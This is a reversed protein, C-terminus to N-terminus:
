STPSTSPRGALARRGPRPQPDDHRRRAPRAPAGRAHRGTRIEHGVLVVDDPTSTSGSSRAGRVQVSDLAANAGGAVAISNEGTEDVLILAVGTPEDACADPPRPRRHGRGRARGRAEAGFTDGGVAGVFTVARASGPPRSRRTRRGQWRSAARVPRRHRDRRAGPLREITVVLDVNVSGVVIVRGSM